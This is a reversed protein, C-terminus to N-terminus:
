GKETLVFNFGGHQQSANGMVEASFRLNIQEAIKWEIARPHTIHDKYTKIPLSVAFGFTFYTLSQL